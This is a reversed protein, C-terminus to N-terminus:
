KCKHFIVDEHSWRINVKVIKAPRGVVLCNNPVDKTVMTQSGIITGDGITVGKMIESCPAVWVHNGIKIPKARNIRQNSDLSYIPHSDSTRIIIHNSLMCNEGIEISMDDEQANVHVDNTFSTNKGITIHIGNGEMWFSCRPGIKCNEKFIIVNNTGIIHIIPNDINCNPEIVLLNNGGRVEKKYSGIGEHKVKLKGHTLEYNYIFRRLKSKIREFFLKMM